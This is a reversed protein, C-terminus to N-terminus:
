ALLIHLNLIHQAPLLQKDRRKCIDAASTEGIDEKNNVLRLIKCRMLNLSYNGSGSLPCLNYKGSINLLYVLWIQVLPGVAKCMYIVFEVALREKFM